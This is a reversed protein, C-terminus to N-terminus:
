RQNIYELSYKETEYGSIIDVDYFVILHIVLKILTLEDKSVFSHRSQNGFDSGKQTKSKLTNWSLSDRAASRILGRIPTDEGKM